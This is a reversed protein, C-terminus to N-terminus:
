HPLLARLRSLGESVGLPTFAAAATFRSIDLTSDLPRGAAYEFEGMSIPVLLGRDFGFVDCVARGFDYRSLAEVGGVHYLGALDREIALLVAWALDDESVPNRMQDTFLRMERGAKLNGYLESFFTGSVPSGWGYVLSSRMVVGGVFLREAELKTEGYVSLPRAEDTESYHGRTGDFVLDTSIFVLVSGIEGARAALRASGALNVARARGPDRECADPDTMAAAHVIVSPRHTKLADDVSPPDALDMRVPAVGDPVRAHSFYTGIVRCKRSLRRALAWGLTGSAGTILISTDPSLYL